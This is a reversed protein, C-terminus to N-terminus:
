KRRHTEEFLGIHSFFSIQCMHISIRCLKTFTSVSGLSGSGTTQNCYLLFIACKITLILVPIPWVVRFGTLSHLDMLQKNSSGIKIDKFAQCVICCHQVCITHVQLEQPRLAELASSLKMEKWCPGHHRKGLHVLDPNHSSNWLILFYPYSSFIKVNILCRSHALTEDITEWKSGTM